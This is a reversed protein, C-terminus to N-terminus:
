DAILNAMFEKETILFADVMDPDFHKGRESLIIKRSENHSFAKKYRRKSSVADYVDALALIRAVLPIAEGALGYPYGTGNWKEHHSEAIEIGIRIFNNGPHKQYVARLTEAGIITHTKMIAFEEDTLKGPKLLIYDPVGVKGIDHLPSAAYVDEIFSKDIVSEYKPLKSLQLCLIKCYERINELHKGTEPDRSEALKSLAFITGRQALSIERVQEEVIEELRVNYEELQIRYKEEQDRLWKKELCADIRAKLLVPNFPKTLYDEAGIEICRVINAMDDMASIMIIPIHRLTNDAKLHKLAQYGDMQPMMIDLLILDPTEEKVKELAELGNTAEIVRHNESLLRDKLLRINRPIDDVVLIKAQKFMQSKM